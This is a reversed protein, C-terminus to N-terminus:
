HPYDAAAIWNNNTEGNIGVWKVRVQQQNGPAVRREVISEVRTASKPGLNVPQVEEPYLHGEIEQGTLDRVHYVPKTPRPLKQSIVFVEELWLPHYGRRFHPTHKVVRLKDGVKLQQARSRKGDNSAGKQLYAHLSPAGYITEFVKDKNEPGVESPKMKITRHYSNNYGNVLEPLVNIYRKTGKATLFKYIKNKITRNFREVMSCKIKQNHSTFFNIGREKLWDKIMRNVFEKGKDTQLKHPQPVAAFIREFAEKVAAPTKNKIPEAFAYRSFLDICTLLYKYGHNSKSLQSMDALDAQYQERPYSVVIKNRKFRYRADRHLTYTREGALWEKVSRLTIDPVRERAAKYLKNISSFASPNKVNYYLEQLVASNNTTSM